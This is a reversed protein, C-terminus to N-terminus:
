FDCFNCATSVPSHATGIVQKRAQLQKVFAHKDEPFVEAFGTADDISPTDLVSSPKRGSKVGSAGTARPTMHHHDDPPLESRLRQRWAALSDVKDGLGVLDAVHKAIPLSDGTLMVVRVGYERIKSIAEKSDARPPDQAHLSYALSWPHAYWGHCHHRSVRLQPDSTCWGTEGSYTRSGATSRGGAGRAGEREEKGEEREKREKGEKEQRERSDLALM